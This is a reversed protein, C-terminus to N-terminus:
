TFSKKRANQVFRKDEDNSSTYKGRQTVTNKIQGYINNFAVVKTSKTNSTSFGVTNPQDKPM